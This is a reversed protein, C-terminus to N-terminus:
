TRLSQLKPFPFPARTERGKKPPTLPTTTGAQGATPRYLSHGPIVARQVRCTPISTMRQGSPIFEPHFVRFRFLAPRSNPSAGIRDLRKAAFVQDCHDFVRGINAIDPRDNSVRVCETDLLNIDDVGILCQWRVPLVHSSPPRQVLRRGRGHFPCEHLPEVAGFVAKVM